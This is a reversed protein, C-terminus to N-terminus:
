WWIDLNLLGIGASDAKKITRAPFPRLPPRITGNFDRSAIQLRGQLLTTEARKPCDPVLLRLCNKLLRHHHFLPMPMLASKSSASRIM